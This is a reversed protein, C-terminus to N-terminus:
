DGSKVNEQIHREMARWAKFAYDRDEENPLTETSGTRQACIAKSYLEIVSDYTASGDDALREREAKTSGSNYYDVYEGRRGKSVGRYTSQRGSYRPAVM